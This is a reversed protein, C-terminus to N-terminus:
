SGYLTQSLIVDRKRRMRLDDSNDGLFAAASLMVYTRGSRQDQGRECISEELMPYECINAVANCSLSLHVRPTHSQRQNQMAYSVYLHMKKSEICASLASVKSCSEKMIVSSSTSPTSVTLTVTFM